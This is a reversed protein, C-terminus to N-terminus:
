GFMIVFMIIYYTYLIPIWIYNFFDAYFFLVMWDELGNKFIYTTANKLKFVLLRIIKVLLKSNNHPILSLKNHQIYIYITGFNFRQENSLQYWLLFNKFTLNKYFIFKYRESSYFYYTQDIQYYSIIVGSDTLINLIQIIKKHHTTKIHFKNHQMAHFIKILLQYYNKNIM